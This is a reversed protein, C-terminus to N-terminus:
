RAASASAVRWLYRRGSKGWGTLPASDIAVLEPPRRAFETARGLAGETDAIYAINADMLYRDFARRRYYDYVVNNMLGDLNVITHKSFYAPIGANFCGILAGEPVRQDFVRQSTLVDAQWPYSRLTTLTWFLAAALTGAALAAAWRARSRLWAPRSEALTVLSAYLVVFLVFGPQARYWYQRDAFFLGYIFGTLLTSLLLVLGIAAASRTRPQRLGRALLWVLASTIALSALSRLENFGGHLEGLLPYVAWEGFVYMFVDRVRSALTQEAGRAWLVKMAGSRQVWSATAWYSYVFLPVIGAVFSGGTWLLARLPSAARFCWALWLTAAGALVIAETRGLFCLSLSAGFLAFDHASPPAAPTDLRPAIRTSFVLLSLALAFIYFAAEMGQMVLNAALPNLLWLAGAVKCAAPSLWRRLAAVLTFAAAVHFLFATLLCARILATGGAFLKACLVMVAMWGPHYGNTPNLGDFSSLNKAALNRATVLYYFADDPVVALLWPLPRSVGQAVLAGSWLLAAWLLLDSQTTGVRLASLRLTWAGSRTRILNTL